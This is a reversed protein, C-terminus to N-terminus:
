SQGRNGFNAVVVNGKRPRRHALPHYQAHEELVMPDQGELYISTTAPNTHDAMTQLTRMDAGRERMWHLVGRRIWYGTIPQDIGADRALRKLADGIAVHSIRAGHRGVFLATEGPRAWLRRTTRVYRELAHVADPWLRKVSEKYNKGIVLIEARDWYVHDMDMRRISVPRCATSAMVLFLARDRTGRLDTKEVSVLRELQDETLWPKPGSRVQPTRVGHFPDIIKGTFGKEGSLWRYFARIGNIESKITAALWGQERGWALFRIADDRGVRSLHKEPGIVARWHELAHLYRYITQDAYGGALLSLRWREILTANTPLRM